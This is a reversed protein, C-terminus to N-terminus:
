AATPERACQCNCGLGEFRVHLGHGGLAACRASRRERCLVPRLPRPSKTKGRLLLGATNLASPASPPPGHTPLPHQHGRQGPCKTDPRRRRLPCAPSSRLPTSSAASPSSASGHRQVARSAAPAMARTSSPRSTCAPAPRPTTRIVANGGPQPRPSRDSHNLPATPPAPRLGSFEGPSASM